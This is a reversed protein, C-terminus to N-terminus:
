QDGEFVPFWLRVVEEAPKLTFDHNSFHDEGAFELNPFWSPGFLMVGDIWPTAYVAEFFAEYYMAQEALDMLDRPYVDAHKFGYQGDCSLAGLGVIVQIREISPGIDARVRDLFEFIRERIEDITPNCSDAFPREPFGGGETSIFPMFFGLSAKSFDISEGYSHRMYGVEGSYRRGVEKVLELYGPLTASNPLGNWLPVFWEIGQESAIAAQGICYSTMEAAWADCWAPGQSALLQHVADLDPTESVAPGLCLQEQLMVSLEHEAAAGTLASLEGETLAYCVDLFEINPTPSLTTYHAANIVAVLNAGLDRAYGMAWDYGDSGVYHEADWAEYSDPFLLGRVSLPRPRAMQVTVDVISDGYRLRYVGPWSAVFRCRTPSNRILPLVNATVYDWGAGAGFEQQWDHEPLEGPFRTADLSIEEGTEFTLPAVENAYWYRVGNTTDAIASCRIPDRSLICAAPSSQTTTWPGAFALVEEMRPDAALIWGIRTVRSATDRLSWTVVAPLASADVSAELESVKTQRMEVVEVVRELVFTGWEVALQAEGDSSVRIGRIDVCSNSLPRSKAGLLPWLTGDIGLYSVDVQLTDGPEPYEPEFAVHIRDEELRESTYTARPSTQTAYTLVEMFQDGTSTTGDRVFTVELSYVTSLSAPSMSLSEWPILIELGDRGVAFNGAPIAGLVRYELDAAGSVSGAPFQLLRSVGFEDSWLRVWFKVPGDVPTSTRVGLLLGVPGPRFSIGNVGVANASSFLRGEALERTSWEEGGPYNTQIKAFGLPLAGQWTVSGWDALDGDVDTRGASVVMEAESRQGGVTASITALGYGVALFSGGGADVLVAVGPDSSDWIVDEGHSAFGGDLFLTVVRFSAQTGLAVTSLKPLILAREASPATSSGPSPWLM